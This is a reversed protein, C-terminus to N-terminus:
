ISDSDSNSNNNLIKDSFKKPRVNLIIHKFLLYKKKKFHEKRM